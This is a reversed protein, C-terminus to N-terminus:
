FDWVKYHIPIESFNKKIKEGYEEDTNEVAMMINGVDVLTGERVSKIEIPLYIGHEDLIHQWGECNFIGEGIHRAILDDADDIKKKNCAAKM